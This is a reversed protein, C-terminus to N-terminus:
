SAQAVRRVVEYLIKIMQHFQTVAIRENHGHILDLEQPTLILPEFGYAIAGKMRFFRSDTGGPLLQPVIVADPFFEKAVQEITHFLVTEHSSTTVPEVPQYLIEVAVRGDALASTVKALFESVSVGPLLRCDLTATAESPIVNVKPPQGVGAQFSTLTVTHKTMANTYRNSALTGLKQRMLSVIPHDGADELNARVAMLRSLAQTLIEVANDYQPMTGGGPADSVAVGRGELGLTGSRPLAAPPPISGHGGIGHATLKLWIIQKESVSPAFVIRQDSTFLGQSGGGGEDIVFEPNLRDYHHEVMWKAGMTGGIEEDCVALWLVDRALPVGQQKLLMLAMLEAIGMGKMDLAGRGWIFGDRVIGGFPDVQWTDRKVPVVDIHNILLLPKGQGSGKLRALVNLKGSSEDAIFVDHDIKAARLVGILFRVADRVDGPPNSTDIRLYQQLSKTAQQLVTDWDQTSASPMRSMMTTFLLATM